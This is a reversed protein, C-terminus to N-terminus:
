SPVALQWLPTGSKYLAKYETRCRAYRDFLAEAAPVDKYVKWWGAALYRRGSNEMFGAVDHLPYGLFLGIEHPFGPGYHLKDKLVALCADLGAASDYGLPGLFAATEPRRLAHEVLAPRFVYVLQGGKGAQLAAVRLGKPRLVRDWCAAPDAAGAPGALHHFLGAIKLGALTPACIDILCNEFTDANV